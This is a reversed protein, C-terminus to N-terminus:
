PVARRCLRWRSPVMPPVAGALDALPDTVRVDQCREAEWPVFTRLANLSAELRQEPGTIDTFMAHMPGGLVSEFMLIDCPRVPDPEPVDRM